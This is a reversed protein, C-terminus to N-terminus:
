AAKRARPRERVPRDPTRARMVREALAPSLRWLARLLRTNGVWIERQGAELGTLVEAAAREPPMKKDPDGHSLETDVLTMIADSVLLPAGADECQYRLTKTFSRLAAKTACYVAANAIPAVGLGSSVNVIAADPQRTLVPLMEASLRIPAALNVAIEQAIESGHSRPADTLRTHVMIAANNILVSCDPHEAAVWNAVAGPMEPAGLDAALIHARGPHARALAQLSDEDRAVALVTAGHAILQETMERGIGRTAGTILVTRGSLPFPRTM